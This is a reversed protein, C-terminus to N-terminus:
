QSSSSIIIIITITIIITGLMIVFVAIWQMTHLQRGLFIYSFIATYVTVSSYIVTFILSGANVLGSFNLYQSIIDVSSLICITRIQIKGQKCSNRCNVIFSLAMGVYNPLIYMMTSTECAGNYTLVEILVPQMVGSAIYALLLLILLIDNM